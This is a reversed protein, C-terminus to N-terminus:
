KKELARAPFTQYQPTIGRCIAIVDSKSWVVYAYRHAVEAAVANEWVRRRDTDPSELHATWRHGLNSVIWAGIPLEFLLKQTLLELLIEGPLTKEPLNETRPHVSFGLDRGHKIATQRWSTILKDLLQSSLGEIEGVVCDTRRFVGGAGGLKEALCKFGGVIDIAVRFQEPSATPIIIRVPNIPPPPM